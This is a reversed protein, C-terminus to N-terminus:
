MKKNNITCGISLVKHRELFEYSSTGEFNSVINQVKIELSM